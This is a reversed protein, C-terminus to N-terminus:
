ANLIPNIDEYTKLTFTKIVVKSQNSQKDLDIEIFEESDPEEKRMAKRFKEFVM